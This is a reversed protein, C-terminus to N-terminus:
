KNLCSMSLKKPYGFYRNNFIDVEYHVTVIILLAENQVTIAEYLKKQQKVM